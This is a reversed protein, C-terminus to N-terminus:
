AVSWNVIASNRNVILQARWDQNTVSHPNSPEGLEAFHSTKPQRACYISCGRQRKLLRKSLYRQAIDTPQIVEEIMWSLSTLSKFTPQSKKSPKERGWGGSPPSDNLGCFRLDYITFRLDLIRM